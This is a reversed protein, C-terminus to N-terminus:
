PRGEKARSLEAEVEKMVRELNKEGKIKGKRWNCYNKELEEETM